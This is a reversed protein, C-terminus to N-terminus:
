LESELTLFEFQMDNLTRFSPSEQISAGNDYDGFATLSTPETHFEAGSVNQLEGRREVGLTVVRGMQNISVFAGAAVEATHVARIKRNETVPLRLGPRRSLQRALRSLFGSIAVIASDIFAWLSICCASGRATSVPVWKM